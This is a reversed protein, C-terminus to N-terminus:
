APERSSPPDYADTSVRHASPVRQPDLLFTARLTTTSLHQAQSDLRAGLKQVVSQNFAEAGAAHAHHPLSDVDREVALHAPDACDVPGEAAPISWCQTWEWALLVASALAVQWVILAARREGIGNM